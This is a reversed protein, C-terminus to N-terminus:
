ETGANEPALWPQTPFFEMCIDVPQNECFLCDKQPAISPLPGAGFSILDMLGLTGLSTSIQSSMGSLTVGQYDPVTSYPPFLKGAAIIDVM